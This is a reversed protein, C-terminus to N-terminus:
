KSKTNMKAFHTQLNKMIAERQYMVEKYCFSSFLLPCEYEVIELCKTDNGLAQFKFQSVSNVCDFNTLFCTRHESNISFGSDEPKVAFHGHATNKIMPIHSLHESYKVSYKWHEYNGSEAIINFDEITPNLQKMNSFDAVFEWVIEPTSNKIVVEFQVTHTRKYFFLGYVILIGFFSYALTKTKWKMPNLGM